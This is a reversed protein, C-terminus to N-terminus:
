TFLVLLWWLRSPHIQPRISFDSDDKGTKKQTEHPIFIGRKPLAIEVGSQHEQEGAELREEVMLVHVRAKCHSHPHLCSDHAQNVSLHTFRVELCLRSMVNTLIAFFDFTRKEMWLPFCDPSLYFISHIKIKIKKCRAMSITYNFQLSQEGKKNQICDNTIFLAALLVQM